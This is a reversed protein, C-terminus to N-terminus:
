EESNLPQEGQNIIVVETNFAEYLSFILDSGFRLLSDKHTLVLRGVSGSCIRKILPKLGKKKYNLGSGLDQMVEYSWGNAASFKELLNVQRM